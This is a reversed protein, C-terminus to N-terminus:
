PLQASRISPLLRTEWYRHYAVPLGPTPAEFSAFSFNSDIKRMAVVSERSRVTDGTSAYVAALYGRSLAWAPNADICKLLWEIAAEEDGRMFLARGMNLLVQESVHKPDLNIAQALLKIARDPEGAYFSFAASANYRLPNRPELSLATEESRKLDGWQGHVLAFYSLTFYLDAITPDIQKAKLALDRAQALQEESAGADGIFGSDVASALAVSLGVMAQVNAPEISLVQRFLAAQEEFLKGSVPALKLARARLMLDVAKPNSKRREGERAALVVMERGISNGVRSTVLEHLSFLSDLSGDFAESWLQANSATDALQAQIRVQDRDRQVSGQLAFRVGLDTGIQAVTLPKDKYAHATTANVVFADRIRSLDATVAATLGDALYAQQVDGTLNAFPLVVISLPGANGTGVSALLSAPALRTAQYANWYGALGGVIAGVGAVAAVAGKLRKFRAMLAAFRGPGSVNTGRLPGPDVPSSKGVKVVRRKVRM